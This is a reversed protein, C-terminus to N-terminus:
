PDAGAPTLYRILDLPEAGLVADRRCLACCPRGDPHRAAPLGHSCKPGTAPRAPKALPLIDDLTHRPSPPTTVRASAPPPDGQPSSNTQQPGAYDAQQQDNGLASAPPEQPRRPDPPLTGGIESLETRLLGNSIDPGNFPRSTEHFPSSTENSPSSPGDPTSEEVPEPTQKGSEQVVEPTQKGSQQDDEPTQSVSQQVGSPITLRYRASYHQRAKDVEELWGGAQLGALARNVADRSKIGSRRRLQDWTCWSIDTAGAYRAYVYGIVRENPRVTEHDWMADLWADRPWKPVREM